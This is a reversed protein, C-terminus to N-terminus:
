INVDDVDENSLTKLQCKCLYAVIRKEAKSRNHEGLGELLAEIRKMTGSNQMPSIITTTTTNNTPLITTHFTSIQEDMAEQLPDDDYDEDHIEEILQEAEMNCNYPVSQHEPSKLNRQTGQYKIHKDIFKMQDFLEWTPEKGLKAVERRYKGRLSKWRLLCYKTDCNLSTAIHSWLEFKKKMDTYPSSRLDKEYLMPNAKILEILKRDFEMDTRFVSM